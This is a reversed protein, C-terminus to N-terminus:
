KRTTRQLSSNIAALQELVHRQQEASWHQGITVRQREGERNLVAMWVVLCAVTAGVLGLSGIAVAQSGVVNRILYILAFCLFYIAWVISHVVLNRSLPVPYWVLFATIFLLFLVLSSTLGREMVFFYRLIPFREHPNSLDPRLSLSAVLMGVALGGFVAWRGVSAIGKFNQLVLTYLELVVLVYLFWVVPETAVWLRAYANSGLHPSKFGTIRRMAWPVTALALSQLTSFLVYVAFWRYVRHLGEHRLRVYLVAGAAISSWWLYQELSAIIPM